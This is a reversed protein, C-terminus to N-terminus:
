DNSSNVIIIWEVSCHQAKGIYLVICFYLLMTQGLSRSMTYSVRSFLRKSKQGINLM